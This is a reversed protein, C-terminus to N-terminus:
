LPVEFVSAEVGPAPSWGFREVSIPSGTSRLQLVAAVASEDASGRDIIALVVPTRVEHLWRVASAGDVITLGAEAPLSPLDENGGPVVISGWSISGVRRPRIIDGLRDFTESSGWRTARLELETWLRSKVGIIAVSARASGFVRRWRRSDIYTSVLGGARPIEQWGFGLEDSHEDVELYTVKSLAWQSRGVHVRMGGSASRCGYFRDVVVRDQMVMRVPVGRTLGALQDMWEPSDSVECGLVWGCAAFVAGYDRAPLTVAVIVQRGDVVRYRALRQGLALLEGAWPASVADVQSDSLAVDLARDECQVAVVRGCNSVEVM